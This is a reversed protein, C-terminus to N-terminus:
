PHQKSNTKKKKKVTDWTIMKSTTRRFIGKPPVSEFKQTLCKGLSLPWLFLSLQWEQLLFLSWLVQFLSISSLQWFTWLAGFTHPWSISGTVWLNDDQSCHSIGRTLSEGQRFSSLPRSESVIINLYNYVNLFTCLASVNGHYWWPYQQKILINCRSSYRISYNLWDSHPVPSVITVAM